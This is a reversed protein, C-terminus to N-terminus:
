DLEHELVLLDLFSILFRIHVDILVPLINLFHGFIDLFFNLWKDIMLSLLVFLVDLGKFLIDSVESLFHSLSIEVL